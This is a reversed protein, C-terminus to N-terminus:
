EEPEPQPGKAGPSRDRELEVDGADYFGRLMGNTEAKIVWCCAIGPDAWYLRELTFTTQPWHGNTDEQFSAEAERVRLLIAEADEIKYSTLYSEIV